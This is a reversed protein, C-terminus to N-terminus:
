LVVAMVIVMVHAMGYNFMVNYDNKRLKCMMMASCCNHTDRWDPIRRHKCSAIKSRDTEDEDAESDSENKLV